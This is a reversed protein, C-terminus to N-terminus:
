YPRIFGTITESFNSGDIQLGWCGSWGQAIQQRVHWIGYGIAASRSPPHSADLVLEDKVPWPPTDSPFGSGTPAIFQIPRDNVLDRGRVLVTGQLDPAAYYTLDYLGAGAGSRDVFKLEPILQGNVYLPGSGFDFGLSNVGPHDPCVEGPQVVPLSMPVAELQALTRTAAPANRVESWDRLLRGSVLVGAVISILVFAAVLSLPARLPNTLRATIRPQASQGMATRLVRDSLGRPSASPVIGDLAERMETRLTM